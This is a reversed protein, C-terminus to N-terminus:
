FMAAAALALVKESPLNDKFCTDTGMFTTCTKLPNRLLFNLLGGVSVKAGVPVVAGVNAGVTWGYTWSDSEFSGSGAGAHQVFSGLIPGALIEFKEQPFHILPALGLDFVLNSTDPAKENVKDFALGLNLSFREALRSGALLGVRLGVGTGEGSDGQFSNIGISPIVM